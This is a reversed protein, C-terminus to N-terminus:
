KKGSERRLDVIDEKKILANLESLELDNIIM